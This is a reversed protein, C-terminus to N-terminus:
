DDETIIKLIIYIAIFVGALVFFVPIMATGVINFFITMVALIIVAAFFTYHKIFNYIM